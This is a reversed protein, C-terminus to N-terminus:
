FEFQCWFLRGGKVFAGIFEETILMMLPVDKLVNVEQEKIPNLILPCTGQDAFFIEMKFFFFFYFSTLLM